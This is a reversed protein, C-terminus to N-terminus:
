KRDVVCVPLAVPFAYFFILVYRVLAMPGLLVTLFNFLPVMMPVVLTYRRQCIVYLFLHMFVIFYWGPSLILFSWGNQQVTKDHSIAEYYEHIQPLLVVETGPEDVRYDYYNNKDNQYGDIVAKPYWADVTNILFSNIYTLPHELGWKIWLKFFETSHCEFVERQFGRKVFDSVTSRYSDLYEKPIIEYLLELDEQELADYDYRHVRAMQQLPVSLMEEIGGTEVNLMCYVPGSYIGYVVAIVLMSVVWKKIQEKRMKRCSFCMIFCVILVIYFGNNRMIMSFFAALVFGKLVNKDSFFTNKSEYFLITYQFFILLAAAFM